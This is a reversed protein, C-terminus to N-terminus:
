HCEDNKSKGKLVNKDKSKKFMYVIKECGYIWPYCINGTKPDKFEFVADVLLYFGELDKDKLSAKLLVFPVIPQTYLKNMIGPNEFDLRVFLGSVGSISESVYVESDNVVMNKPIEQIVYQNYNMYLEQVNRPIGNAVNEEELERLRQKFNWNRIRNVKEPPTLDEVCKELISSVLDENPLVEGRNSFGPTIKPIVVSFCKDILKDDFRKTYKEKKISVFIPINKVNGNRTVYQIGKGIKPDIGARNFDTFCTNQKFSGDEFDEYEEQDYESYDDDFAEDDNM